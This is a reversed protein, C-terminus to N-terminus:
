VCSNARMFQQSCNNFVCPLFHRAAMHCVRAAVPSHYGIQSKSQQQLNCTSPIDSRRHSCEAPCMSRIHASYASVSSERATATPSTAQLNAIVLRVRVQLTQRCRAPMTTAHTGVPPPGTIIFVYRSSPRTIIAHRQAGPQPDCFAFEPADSLTPVTGAAPLILIRNSPHLM